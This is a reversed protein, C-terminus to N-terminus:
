KIKWAGVKNGNIDIIARDTNGARIQEAVYELDRAVAERDLEGEEPYEVFGNPYDPYTRYAANELSMELVLKM